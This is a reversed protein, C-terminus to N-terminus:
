VGSNVLLVYWRSASWASRNSARPSVTTTSADKEVPSCRSSSRETPCSVEASTMSSRHKAGLSARLASQAGPRGLWCREAVRVTVDSCRMAAVVSGHGSACVMSVWPAGASLRRSASRESARAYCWRRPQRSMVGM